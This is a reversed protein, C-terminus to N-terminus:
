KRRKIKAKIEKEQKVEKIEENGIVISEGGKTRTIRWCRDAINELDQSHTVVIIQIDLKSSIEKM